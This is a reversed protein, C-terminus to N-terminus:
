KSNILKHVIPWADNAYFRHAGNGKVMVCMNGLGNEDYIRRGENFVAEAGALPFIPDNIGNVQIYKKPYSMALLDSMEFYNAIDPVYNCACHHMAGISDKEERFGMAM